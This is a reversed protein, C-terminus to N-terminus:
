HHVFIIRSGQPEFSFAMRRLKLERAIADHHEPPAVFMLFGGTGAGLLKGGEAGARRGKECWDDIQDSSISKVM